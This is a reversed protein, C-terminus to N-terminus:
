ELDIQSYGNAVAWSILEERTGLDFKLQLKECQKRITSISSSRRNAMEVYKMGKALMTLIEREASTVESEASVANTPYVVRRGDMTEEIARKLTTISETKCVYSHAGYEMALNVFVTRAEASFIVIKASSMSRLATLLYSVPRTGPMHLDLLIVNPKLDETSKLLDDRNACLGACVFRGDDFLGSVLGGSTVEHDEAILVSVPSVNLSLHCVRTRHVM